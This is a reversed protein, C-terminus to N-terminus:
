DEDEKLGLIRCYFLDERLQLLHTDVEDIENLLRRLKKALVELEPVEFDGDIPLMLGRKRLGIAIDITLM